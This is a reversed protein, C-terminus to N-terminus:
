KSFHVFTNLFLPSNLPGFNPIFFLQDHITSTPLPPLSKHWLNLSNNITQKNHTTANTYPLFGGLMIRINSVCKHSNCMKLAHSVFSIMCM